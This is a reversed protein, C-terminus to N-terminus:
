RPPTYSTPLATSTAPATTTTPQCNEVLKYLQFQAKEAVVETAGSGRKCNLRVNGKLIVEGRAPVLMLTDCYGSVGAGIVHVKGHASLNTLQSTGEGSSQMDVRDCYAKLIVEDGDRLEFRSRGTGTRLYLKYPGTAPTKVPKSSSVTRAQQPAPAPFYMPPPTTMPVPVQQTQAARPIPPPDVVTIQRVESPMPAPEPEVPQM